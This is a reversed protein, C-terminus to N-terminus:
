LITNVIDFLKEIDDLTNFLHPAIRMNNGRFSVFVNNVSLKKSLRLAQEASFEVGMMHGVRNCRAPVKLGAATANREIEDTLVQLTEQINGVGWQKIQALAVFAMAINHFSPYEGADFRRAGSKYEDTYDVLGTFNESHKKPLWSHEIPKGNDCYEDGAYLYGLGYPGLLWKYGVTILFDPKIQQIDLPYAGASQSADIVLKANVSKVKESVRKLDLLTGNTWHCNPVAVLGTNTNINELVAETWAEGPKTYVTIIEASTEKALELWSYINSPYQQNLVVIKEGTKLSINKAAVAIGYSASPIIAINQKDCNIIGAFLSRLEEAPTFWDDVTITWPHCRRNLAQIGADRAANLMPSM